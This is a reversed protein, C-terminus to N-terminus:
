IDGDVDSNCEKKLNGIIRICDEGRILTGEYTEGIIRLPVTEQAEMQFLKLEYVLEIVMFKLDLDM